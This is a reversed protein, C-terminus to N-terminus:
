TMETMCVKFRLAVTKISYFEYTTYDKLLKLINM